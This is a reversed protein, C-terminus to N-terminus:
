YIRHLPPQHGKIVRLANDWSSKFLTQFSQLTIGAIHPTLLLRDAHEEPLHLLPSQAPLPEEEFVDVAAGGLHGNQLSEALAKENVVAGRSAQIIIAGPKMLGFERTGILGRTEDILPVHVSIVDSERLLEQLSVARAGLANAVASRDLNDTYIIHAGFRKFSAAVNQGIVGLGIIGVQKGELGPLNQKVMWQRSTIYHGAKIKKDAWSFRRMLNLANVVTYEAMASNSGGPVNAVAIHLAKMQAENVRDVGAGTFQVLQLRTGDFLSPPLPPGAAPVLMVIAERCLPGVDDDSPARYAINLEQPPTVGVSLFDLEPRLCIVDYTM